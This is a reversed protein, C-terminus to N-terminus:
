VGEEGESEVRERSEEGRSEEGRECRVGGLLSELLECFESSGTVEFCVGEDTKYCRIDKVQYKRMFSQAIEYKLAKQMGDKSRRVFEERKSEDAILLTLELKCKGDELNEVLYDYDEIDYKDKLDAWIREFEKKILQRFHPSKMAMELFPAYGVSKIFGSLKDLADKPFMKRLFEKM